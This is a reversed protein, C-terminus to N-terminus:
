TRKAAAGGTWSPTNVLAGARRAATREAARETSRENNATTVKLSLREVLLPFERLAAIQGRQFANKATDNEYLMAEARYAAVSDVLLLLAQWEPYSRLVALERLQSDSLDYSERPPAEKGRLRAILDALPKFM